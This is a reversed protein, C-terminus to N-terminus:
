RRRLVLDLKVDGFGEKRGVIDALGNLKGVDGEKLLKSVGYEMNEEGGDLGLAEVKGMVETYTASAGSFKDRFFNYYEHMAGKEKIIYSLHLQVECIHGNMKVNMLCDRIGTPLPNAFRNKLRVVIGMELMKGLTGELQEETEM